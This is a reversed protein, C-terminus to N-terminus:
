KCSVTDTYLVGANTYMYTYGGGSFDKIEICAGKTASNSDISMTTTATSFLQLLVGISPTTTAIGIQGTSTIFITSTAQSLGADNGVLFNGKTLSQGTIGGSSTSTAIWAISNTNNNWGLVQGGTAMGYLTSTALSTPITASTVSGLVGASGLAALTFSNIGGSYSCTIGSACSDTSTSVYSLLGGSGALVKGNQVAGYLTSTAQMTLVGTAPIGLVGASQSGFSTTNSGSSTVAGSLNANLTVTAANGSISMNVASSTAISALTNVGTAYLLGSAASIPSSTSLGNFGLTAGSLTIPWTASITAQKSNFTGWDTSSLCGNQSGSSTACDIALAGGIASRGATVTIASSGASVTGTAVGFVGAAGNSVLLNSSAPQSTTALGTYTVAGNTLVGIANAITFPGSISFSTTAVSQVGNGGTSNYLVQSQSLNSTTALGTYTIASSAGIVSISPYTFPGSVTLTSTAVGFASGAGDSSYVLLNSSAIPSTTSLGTGGGTGNITIPSAALVNFTACTISGTCTVSTTAVGSVGNGGTSNYLLQSQILNSTTALGTYMISGSTGIISISPYTFPGSVTFTSTAVGFASGTGVSSYVLLNSSAIPSTTALGSGIGTPWTTKCSDGTLCLQDTIVSAWANVSPTTTGLSYKSDSEPLISKQFIYQPAAYAISSFALVCVIIIIFKNKM